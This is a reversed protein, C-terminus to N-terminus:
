RDLRRTHRRSIASSPPARRFRWRTPSRMVARNLDAHATFRRARRGDLVEAAQEQADVVGRVVDVLWLPQLASAPRAAPGEVSTGPAGHWHRDGVVLDAKFRDSYQVSRHGQFDIAGPTGAKIKEGLRTLARRM